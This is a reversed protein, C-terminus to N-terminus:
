PISINFLNVVYASVFLCVFFLVFLFFFFIFAFFLVFCFLVFVYILRKDFCMDQIDTFLFIDNGNIKLAVGLLDLQKM